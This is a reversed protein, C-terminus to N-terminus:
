IGLALVMLVTLTFGPSSRVQRFAYRIDARLDDWPRVGLASRCAEKQSPITGLELRARRMAEDREVGSRMLDAAYSEVHFRVETEMEGELKGRRFLARWWSRIRSAISM